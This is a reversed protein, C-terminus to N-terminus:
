LVLFLYFQQALCDYHATLCFLLRHRAKSVGILRSGLPNFIFVERDLDFVTMRISRVPHRTRGRAITPKKAPAKSSILTKITDIKAVALNPAKSAAYIPPPEVPDIQNQSHTSIAAAANIPKAKQAM